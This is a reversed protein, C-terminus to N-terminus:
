TQHWLSSCRSLLPVKSLLVLFDAPSLALCLDLLHSRSETFLLFVWLESKLNRVSNFIVTVDAASDGSSRSDGVRDVEGEDGSMSAEPAKASHSKGQSNILFPLIPALPFAAAFSFVALALCFLPLSQVFVLPVASIGFALM